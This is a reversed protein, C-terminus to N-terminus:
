KAGGEKKRYDEIVGLASEVTQDEYYSIGESSQVQFMPAHDCAALCKVAEISVFGDASTEGVQIGINECLQELFEDAGRLACPLDNCVQIRVKGGPKDHYLTYFGVISAVETASSGIVEAIDELDQKTIYGAESQAMYILPMVAARKEDEPYKALVAKIEKSYKQQLANM